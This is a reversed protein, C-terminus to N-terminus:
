WIYYLLVYRKATMILNAIGQGVLGCFFGVSGYLIGQERIINWVNLSITIASLMEPSITLIESFVFNGQFLINRDTAACFIQIRAKWSWFRQLFWNQHDNGLHITSHLVPFFHVINGSYSLPLVIFWVHLLYHFRFVLSPALDSNWCTICFFYLGKATNNSHGGFVGISKSYCCQPVGHKYLSCFALSWVQVSISIYAVVQFCLELM